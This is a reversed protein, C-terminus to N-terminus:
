CILGLVEKVKSIVAQPSINKICRAYEPNECKIHKCPRCLLKEDTSFLVRKDTWPYICDPVTPGYIVVVSCGSAGAIHAPASDNGVFIDSSSCLSAFEMVSLECTSATIPKTLNSSIENILQREEKGGVLFVEAEDAVENILKAYNSAGWQRLVTRAGPHIVIRPKDKTNTICPLKDLLSAKVDTPIHLRITEDYVKLQLERLIDLHYQVLHSQLIKSSCHHTYLWRRLKGENDYSIRINAGSLWALIAPRDADTLEIVVDPKIARIQRIFQLFYWWGSLGKAKARDFTIISDVDHGLVFCGETGKNVCVTVTSHPLNLRLNRLLPLMWISDGLYRFKIVLIHYAKSPDLLNNLAKPSHM